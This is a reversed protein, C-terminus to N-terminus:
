DLSELLAVLKSAHNEISHQKTLELSVDSLRARLEPDDAIKRIAASFGEVDGPQVFLAADDRFDLVERLVPLDSAVLPLGSAAAEVLALGFTEWQSSFLFADSARFLTALEEGRLEGLLRVRDSLGLQRALAELEGRLEGDGAILLKHDNDRMARLLTAQDKQASLRGVNLFIFEDAGLGLAARAEERGLPSVRPSIGDHLVRIRRRYLDSRGEFCSATWDSNAIVGNYIGLIGWLNDVFRLPRSLRQPPQTQVAARRSIGATRAILNGLINAPATNTVVADYKEAVLRSRFAKMARLVDVPGPRKTSLLVTKPQDEFAPRKEYIYYVDAQHGMDRLQNATQMVRVQAGGTEVQTLLFAIKM